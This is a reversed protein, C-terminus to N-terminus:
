HSKKGVHRFRSGLIPRRLFQQPLEHLFFQWSTTSRDFGRIVAERDLSSTAHMTEGKTYDFVSYHRHNMSWGLHRMPMQTIASRVKRLLKLFEGRIEVPIRGERYDNYFLSIGGNKEYYGTIKGFDTRFSIWHKKDQTYTEGSKQPIFEQSAVIPYYYLLWKESLLGLPFWVRGEKEQRIASNEQCIQIVGRLLAYKYTSDAADQEIIRNITRFDELSM